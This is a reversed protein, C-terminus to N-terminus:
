PINWQTPIEPFCLDFSVGTGTRFTERGDIMSRRWPEGSNKLFHCSFAETESALHLRIPFAPFIEISGPSGKGKPWEISERCQRVVAFLSLLFLTDM